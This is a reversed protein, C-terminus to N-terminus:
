SKAQAVLTSLVRKTEGSSLVSDRLWEILEKESVIEYDVGQFSAHLPYINVDHRIKFLEYVYDDLVPVVLKFSHALRGSRDTYSTVQGEVLGNTRKALAAAQQKLLSVPTTVSEDIIDAPWLDPEAM